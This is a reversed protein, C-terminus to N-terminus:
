KIHQRLIRVQSDPTVFIRARYKIGNHMPHDQKTFEIYNGRVVENLLQSCLKTKVFDQLEDQNMQTSQIDMFSMVYEVTIMKGSIESFEYTNTNSMKKVVNAEHQM